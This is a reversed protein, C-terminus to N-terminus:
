VGRNMLSYINREDSSAENIIGQGFHYYICDDEEEQGNFLYNIPDLSNLETVENALKEHL